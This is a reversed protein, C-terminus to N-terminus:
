QEDCDDNGQSNEDDCSTPVQTSSFTEDLGGTHTACPGEPCTGSVNLESLSIFATGSDASTGVPGHITAEYHQRATVEVVTGAGQLLTGVALNSVQQCTGQTGQEPSTGSDLTKTGSVTGLASTITFSEQLDLVPGAVTGESDPGPPRQGPLTQPGLTLTGSMVFTGPYPGSAVGSATWNITSVGTPNCNADITVGDLPAFLDEATLTPNPAPEGAAFASAGAGLVALAALLLAVLRM